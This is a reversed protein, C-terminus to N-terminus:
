PTYLEATATAKSPSVEGGAILVQGSALRTATHNSRAVHMSGTLTWKGTTADYVEASTSFNGGAVLVTSALRTGTHEDRAVHLNGTLSWTGTAVNYVEASALLVCDSVFINTCKIGAAVLVKNNPLSTATHFDRPKNMKGTTSWTGTTPSYLEASGVSHPCFCPSDPGQRGNISAAQGTKATSELSTKHALAGTSSAQCCDGAGDDGGAVLVKGNPLLTATHDFRAVQLSGTLSWTGTAPDYLEAPAIAKLFPQNNDDGGAVLVKGNSLLTATHNERAVHLSGTFSWKGTSPDYLEASALANSTNNSGGAVLVKGNPLPTATHGSRVVNLNGTLSWKGTSPNYLEASAPGGGAVLVKGSSLQTATHGSRAFHLSGTLSWSGAAVTAQATGELVAALLPLFVVLLGLTVAALRMKRAMEREKRGGFLRRM